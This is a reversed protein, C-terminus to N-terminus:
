YFQPDLIQIQVPDPRRILNGCLVDPLLKQLKFVFFIPFKIIYIRPGYGQIWYKPHNNEKMVVSFTNSGLKELFLPLVDVIESKNNNNVCLHRDLDLRSVHHPQYLLVELLWVQGAGQLYDILLM